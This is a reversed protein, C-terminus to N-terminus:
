PVGPYPESPTTAIPRHASGTRPAMGGPPADKDDSMGAILIKRTRRDNVVPMVIRLVLFVILAIVVFIVLVRFVWAGNALSEWFKDEHM